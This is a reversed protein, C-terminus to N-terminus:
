FTRMNRQARGTERKSSGTQRTIPRAWCCSAGVLLAKWVLGLFHSSRGAVELSQFRTERVGLALSGPLVGQRKPGPSVRADLPVVVGSISSNLVDWVFPM